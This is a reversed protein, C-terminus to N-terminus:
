LFATKPTDNVCNTVRAIGGKATAKWRIPFANGWNKWRINASPAAAAEEDRISTQLKSQLWKRNDLPLTRITQWLRELSITTEM